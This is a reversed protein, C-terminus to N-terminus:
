PRGAVASSCPHSQAVSKRIPSAGLATEEAYNKNLTGLGLAVAADRARSLNTLDSVGSPTTVRWMGSWLDDPRIEALKVRGARLVNGRWILDERGFVHGARRPRQYEPRTPAYPNRM